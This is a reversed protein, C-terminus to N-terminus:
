CRASKRKKGIIGNAEAKNIYDPPYPVKCATNGVDVKVKGIALGVELALNKLPSVFVGVAIVFGNMAYRVRNQAHGIESEVIILLNKIEDLDLEVDPRLSVLSSYTAWGAVAVQEVPSEMWKLAMERGYPSESAVCAVSFQSHMYWKAGDVWTQLLEPTMQREDAILGALYQADSNGTAYLGLALQHNKKVRKVIPKLDQTKVGFLPEPAGHNQWICKYQEHGLAELEAMIHSVTLQDPEPMELEILIRLIYPCLGIGFCGCACCGGTAVIM